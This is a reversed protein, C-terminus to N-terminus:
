ETLNISRLALAPRCHMHKAKSSHYSFKLIYCNLQQRFKLTQNNLTISPQSAKNNETATQVTTVSLQSAAKVSQNPHQKFQM